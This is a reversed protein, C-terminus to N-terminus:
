RYSLKRDDIIIFFVKMEPRVDTLRSLDVRGNQIGILEHVMAQYTWQSLLPTVPDNKRDLLLLIPPSDTKRFDFLSGEQSMSYLIEGALKKALVSNKAYRILPKKKLSLLIALLGENCRMFSAQNWTGSTENYLTHKPPSLGLSFTDPNIVLYDAYYEQVEKVVEHEDSEALREL